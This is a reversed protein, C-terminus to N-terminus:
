TCAKYYQEVEAKITEVLNNEVAKRAARIANKTARADSSGHGIICVGNLGLLPAGGYEKYDLKKRLFLFYLPLLMVIPIIALFLLLLNSKFIHKLYSIVGQMSKLAINGAFGDTVTVDAKKKLLDRGEVNGIFYESFKEEFIEYAENVPKNGKGKEGGIALLGVTPQEIRLIRKAYAIGMIAFQELNRPSCDTTAGADLLINNESLRSAIAPRDINEIRGFKLTAASMTAASNGLGVMGNAKMPLPFSLDNDLTKDIGKGAM